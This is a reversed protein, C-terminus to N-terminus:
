SLVKSLAWVVVLVVAAGYRFGRWFGPVDSIM